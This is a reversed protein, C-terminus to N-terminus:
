CNQKTSGTRSDVLAMSLWAPVYRPKLTLALHLAERADDFKETNGLGNAYSTLTSAVFGLTDEPESGTHDVIKTIAELIGGQECFEAFGSAAQVSDLKSALAELFGSPLEQWVPRSKFFALVAGDPDSVTGTIRGPATQM